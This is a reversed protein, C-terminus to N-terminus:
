CELSGHAGLARLLLEGATGSSHSRTRGMCPGRRVLGTHLWEKPLCGAGGRHQCSHTLWGQWGRGVTCLFLLWPVPAQQCPLGPRASGLLPCKWCYFSGTNWSVGWGRSSPENQAGTQMQLSSLEVLCMSKSCIVPNIIWM